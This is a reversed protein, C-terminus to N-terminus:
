VRESSRKNHNTSSYLRRGHECHVPSLNSWFAERAEQNNPIANLFEELHEPTGIRYHKKVPYISVRHYRAIMENYIPCVYFENNVRVNKNIMQEAASVFMHGRRWYYLGCTGHNSIVEKERVYEVDGWENVKAFSDGPYDSEFTLIVGDAWGAHSLCYMQFHSPNWETLQDSNAILLPEDNDLHQKALLCTCAAGETISNVPIVICEPIIDMLVKDISYEEVHEALVLFIHKNAPGLNDIVREIMTKGDVDVLPKPLRYGKEAFRKGRGAMPVLLNM